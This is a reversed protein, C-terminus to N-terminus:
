KIGDVTAGGVVKAERARDRGKLSRGAIFSCIKKGKKLCAIKKGVGCAHYERQDKKSGDVTQLTNSWIYVKKFVM